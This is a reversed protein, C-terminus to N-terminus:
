KFKQICNWIPPIENGVKWDSKEVKIVTPNETPFTQISLVIGPNEIWKIKSKITFSKIKLLKGPFAHPIQQLL